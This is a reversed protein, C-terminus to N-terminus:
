GPRRRKTPPQTGRRAIWADVDFRRFRWDAGLKFVPIQGLKLLRYITSEHCHLYAALDHVNLIEDPAASKAM